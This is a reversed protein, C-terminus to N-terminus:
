STRTRCVQLGPRLTKSQSLLWWKPREVSLKQAVPYAKSPSNILHLRSRLNQDNSCDTRPSGPESYGLWIVVIWLIVADRAQICSSITGSFGSQAVFPALKAQICKREVYRFLHSSQKHPRSSIPKCKNHSGSDLAHSNLLQILLLKTPACTQFDQLTNCHVTEYLKCFKGQGSWLWSWM